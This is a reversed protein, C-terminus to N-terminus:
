RRQEEPEDPGGPKGDRGVGREALWARVAESSLFQRAIWVATHSSTEAVDHLYVVLVAQPDEVPFWGAIWTHKRMRGEIGRPDDEPGRFPAYDASGTKLAVSFGLAAADLGKGHASGGPEAVVSALARRVFALHEEGVEVEQVEQAAAPVGAGGITGVLRLAPLRGTLLGATARAVQLPTAEIVGLGNAGMMRVAAQELRQELEPHLACDERLGSRGESGLSRIGTPADFGFAHAMRRYAAPTYLEEGVRAFYANCSVRLADALDVPGHLGTCHMSKYGPKGDALLACEFRAGPDLGQHELAWAAVFPKLV